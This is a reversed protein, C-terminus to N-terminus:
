RTAREKAFVAPGALWGDVVEEPAVYVLNPQVSTQAFYGKEFEAGVSLTLSTGDEFLVEVRVLADKPTLKQEALAGNLSVLRSAHLEAVEKLFKNVKESDLEFEALKSQDVWTKDKDKRLFELQRLEVLTRVSVKINKVTAPDLVHMRGSVLPSALGLLHLADAPVHGLLGADIMPQLALMSGRDRYDGDQLLQLSLPALLFVVDTGSHTAYVGREAGEKGNDKGLRLVITEPRGGETQVIAGAVM